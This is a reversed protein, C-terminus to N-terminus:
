KRRAQAIGRRLFAAQSAPRTYAATQFPNDALHMQLDIADQRSLRGEKVLADMHNLIQDETPAGTFGGHISDVVKKLGNYDEVGILARHGPNEAAQSYKSYDTMTPKAFSPINPNRPDTTVLGKFRDAAANAFSNADAEMAQKGYARHMDVYRRTQSWNAKQYGHRAEHLMTKTLNASGIGERGQLIDTPHALASAEQKAHMFAGGVARSQEVPTAFDTFYNTNPSGLESHLKALMNRDTMLGPQDTIAGGKGPRYKMDQWFTKETTGLSKALRAARVGPVASGSKEVSSRLFDAASGQKAKDLVGAYRGVGTAAGVDALKGVGGAVPLVSLLTNIPHNEAQRIPHEALDLYSKGIGKAINFAPRPNGMGFEAVAKGAAFYGRPDVLGKADSIAGHLITGWSSGM